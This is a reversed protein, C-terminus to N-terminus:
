VPSRSGCATLYLTPITDIAVRIALFTTGWIISIATFSAIALAREHM